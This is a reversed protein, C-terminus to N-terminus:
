TTHGQAVKSGTEALCCARRKAAKCTWTARSNASHETTMNTLPQSVPVPSLVYLTCCLMYLLPDLTVVYGILLGNRHVEAAKRTRVVGTRQPRRAGSRM